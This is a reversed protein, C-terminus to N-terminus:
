ATLKCIEHGKETLHRHLTAIHDPGIECCGGIITAGDDLWKDIHACYSQPSLDTRASLNDVTQGPALASISTFGNAYGGTRLGSKAIIPIANDIAEPYCCNVCLASVGEAGLADIAQELTEGSRLQNRGDDKLTLAILAEHGYDRLAAIAAKSEEINSMTEVLFLDVDDQQAEIIAAFEDYSSQYDLAAESVYSAAIPPLCGAITIDDRAIPTEAIAQKITSLALKHWEDFHASAGNRNLRSKTITYSNVALTRAGALLFDKHVEAVIQPHEAMVKVSWLPHSTDSPSRKNIEQGLGGDLLTIQSM